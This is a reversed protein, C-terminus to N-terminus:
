VMTGAFRGPAQSFMWAAVQDRLVGPELGSNPLEDVRVWQFAFEAELSAPNDPYPLSPATCEFLLNLEHTREHMPGYAHEVAGLFRQIEVGHGLEEKIERALAAKAPEGHEIHGGPLFTNEAGIRQALLLYGERQIVARVIVEITAPSSM